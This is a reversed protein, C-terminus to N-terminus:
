YTGQLCYICFTSRLKGLMWIWTHVFRTWSKGTCWRYWFSWGSCAARTWLVLGWCSPPLTSYHPVASGLSEDPSAARRPRWTKRHLMNFDVGKAHKIMSSVSTSTTPLVRTYTAGRKVWHTMIVRWTSRPKETLPRIRRAAGKQTM